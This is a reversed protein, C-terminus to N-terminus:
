HNGATPSCGHEEPRVAPLYATQEPSSLLTTQITSAIFTTPTAAPRSTARDRRQRAAGPPRSEAQACSTRSRRARRRAPRDPRRARAVLSRGPPEGPARHPRRCSRRAPRSGAVDHHRRIGFERRAHARLPAVTSPAPRNRERNSDAGHALFSQAGADVLHPALAHRLRRDAGELVVVPLELGALGPEHRLVRDLGDGVHGLEVVQRVVRLGLALRQRMGHHQPEVAPEAGAHPQRAGLRQELGLVPQAEQVDDGALHQRQALAM